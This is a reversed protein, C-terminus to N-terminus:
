PEWGWLGQQGRAPIPGCSGRGDCVHCTPATGHRCEALRGHEPCAFRAGWCWPCREGVPKIDDLALQATM